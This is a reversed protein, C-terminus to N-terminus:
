LASLPSSDHLLVTEVAKQLFKKTRLMQCVDQFIQLTFQKCNESLLSRPLGYVMVLHTVLEKAIIEEASLKLPVQLVLNTLRDLNM